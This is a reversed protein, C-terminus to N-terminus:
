ALCALEGATLQRDLKALERGAALRIHRRNVPQQEALADYSAQVAIARITAGTVGLRALRLHDLNDVPLDAPFVRRWIEARLAEDPFPFEVIFGLRRVFASDLAGRINTTLIALGRYTEMRALLYSVELNAYRDHSDRVETRKAFLSDAEDFVLVAGSREAADFVRSLNKETEGIYKSVVASLDIRYLDADIEGAIVEAALTKGTGSPGHFLASIGDGRGKWLRRAEPHHRVQRALTRLAELTPAPLVLDDWRGTAEVRTALGDLGDRTRARCTAWLQTALDDSGPLGAAISDIEDASLRFTVAARRGVARVITPVQRLHRELAADWAVQLESEEAVPIEVVGLSVVSDPSRRGVIVVPGSLADILASLRGNAEPQDVTEVVLVRPCLGQERRWSRALQARERATAPLDDARILWATTGALLAARSAIHRAEAVSAGVLRVPPSGTQWRQLLLQALREHSPVLTGTTPMPACTEVLETPLDDLGLLHHVARETPRLAADPLPGPGLDALGGSRLPGGPGIASWHASPLVSAAVAFSVSEGPCAQRVAPRLEGAVALALWEREFASLGFAEALEHLRGTGLQELAMRRQTAAEAADHQQPDLRAALRAQAEDCIAEMLDLDHRLTTM